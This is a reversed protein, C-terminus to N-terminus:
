ITMNIIHAFVSLGAKKNINQNQNIDEKKSLPQNTHFNLFLFYFKSLDAEKL